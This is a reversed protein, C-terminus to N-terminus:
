AARFSYTPVQEGGDRRSLDHLYITINQREPRIPLRPFEVLLENVRRRPYDTRLVRAIIRIQRALGARLSARGRIGAMRYERQWRRLTLVHSEATRAPLIYDRSIRM